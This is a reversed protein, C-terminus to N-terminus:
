SYNSLNIDSIERSLISFELLVKFFSVGYIVFLKSWAWYHLVPNHLGNNALQLLLWVTYSIMAVSIWLHKYGSSFLKIRYLISIVKKTYEKHQNNKEIFKYEMNKEFNICALAAAITISFVTLSVVLLDRHNDTLVPYQSIGASDSLFYLGACPLLIVLLFLIEESYCLFVHRKGYKGLCRLNRISKKYYINYILWVFVILSVFKYANVLCDIWSWFEM